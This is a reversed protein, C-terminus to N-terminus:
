IVWVPRRDRDDAGAPTCVLRVPFVTQHDSEALVLSPHIVPIQRRRAV